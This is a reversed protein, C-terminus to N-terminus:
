RHGYPAHHEGADPMGSAEETLSLRPRMVVVANEWLRGSLPRASYLPM